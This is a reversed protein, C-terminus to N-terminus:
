LGMMWAKAQRARHQCEPAPLDDGRQRLDVGPDSQRAPSRSASLHIECRSDIIESSSANAATPTCPIRACTNRRGPQEVLGADLGVEAARQDPAGAGVHEGVDLCQRPDVLSM